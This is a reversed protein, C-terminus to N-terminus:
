SSSKVLVYNSLCQRCEESTRLFSYTTQTRVAQVGQAVACLLRVACEALEEPCPECDLSALPVLALLIRMQTDAAQENQATLAEVKAAEEASTLGLCCDFLLRREYEGLPSM